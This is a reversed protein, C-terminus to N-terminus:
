NQGHNRWLEDMVILSVFEYGKEKLIDVAMKLRRPGYFWSYFMAQIFQQDKSNELIENVLFDRAEIDHETTFPAGHQDWSWRTVTHHVSTDNDLMVHPETMNDNRGMDAIISKFQPYKTLYKNIYEDDEKKWPTWTHSYLGFM